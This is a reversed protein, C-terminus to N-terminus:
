IKEEFEKKLENVLCYARQVKESIKDCARSRNKENDYEKKELENVESILSKLIERVKDHRYM